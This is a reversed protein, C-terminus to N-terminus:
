IKSLHTAATLQNLHKSYIMQMLSEGLDSYLDNKVTKAWQNTRVVSMKNQPM